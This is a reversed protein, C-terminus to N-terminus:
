EKYLIPLLPNEGENVILSESIGYRNKSVNAATAYCILERTGDSIARKKDEDGTVFAQLRLFAVVDVDDTYHAISKEHLRLSYKTYPEGDPPEVKKTEAHAIFVVTMGRATLLESAKRIRMHMSALASIGAGYGGLAQNISRPKKPDTAIINEIFIRDLATVSDIIVTKFDHKEVVLYKLQQWLQEPTDILEGSPPANKVSQLGDEARIVVPSTFTCALSTKGMGADGLITVVPPRPKRQEFM